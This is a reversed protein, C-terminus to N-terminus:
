TIAPDVVALALDGVGAASGQELLRHPGDDAPPAFARDLREREIVRARAGAKHRQLDAVVADREMEVAIPGGEVPFKDDLSALIRQGVVLPAISRVPLCIRVITVPPAPKM